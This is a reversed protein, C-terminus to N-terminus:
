ARAARSRTASEADAEAAGTEVPKSETEGQAAKLPAMASDFLHLWQDALGRSDAFFTEMRERQWENYLGAVEGPNTCKACRKVLDAVSEAASKVRGLWAQHLAEVQKLLDAQAKLMADARARGFLDRVDTWSENSQQSQTM